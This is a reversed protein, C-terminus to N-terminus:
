RLYDDIQHIVVMKSLVNVIDTTEALVEGTATDLITISQTDYDNEIEYDTYVYQYDVIDYYYMSSYTGATVGDTPASIQIFHKKAFALLDVKAQALELDSLTELNDTSPDPIVGDTIAQNVADNTPAFITYNKSSNLFSILYDDDVDSISLQAGAGELVELFRYYTNENQLMTGYPYYEPRSIFSSMKYFNGNDGSLTGTISVTTGNSIDGGGSIESGSVYVYDGYMTQYYNNKSFSEEVIQNEVIAALTTSVYSVDSDDAEAEDPDPYIRNYDDDPDGTVEMYIQDEDGNEPFVVTIRRTTSNPDAIDVFQDNRIGLISYEVGESELAADIGLEQVADYMISYDDDLLLPGVVTSFSPAEFVKNTGVLFGNSCYHKDVIDAETLNVEDLGVTFAEGYNSPCLDWFKAFFYMNLVTGLVDLPMDDYSSYYESIISGSSLYNTLAENTPTLIGTSFVWDYNISAVLYPYTEDNPDFALYNSTVGELFDLYYISDNTEEDIYKYNFYGFRDLMSKFMSYNSAEEDYCLWQYMNQKPEIVKDLVYILGNEASVGIDTVEADFVRMDGEGYEEEDEFIYNYDSYEVYHTSFEFYSNLFYTTCKMDGGSEDVKYTRNSQNLSNPYDNSNYEVISDNYQTYRRFANGEYWGNKYYTLTTTNYASSIISYKIINEMKYKPVNEFSSYGNESMWEEFATDTFPFITWSGGEALSEAYDTTDLCALYYNFEEMSALQECIDGELDDPRAFYEEDPRCSFAILVLMLVLLYLNKNKM